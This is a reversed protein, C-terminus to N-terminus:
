FTMHMKWHPLLSNLIFSVESENAAGPLYNYSYCLVTFLLVLQVVFWHEHNRYYIVIIFYSISTATDLPTRFCLGWKKLRTYLWPGTVILTSM